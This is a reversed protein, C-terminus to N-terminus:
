KPSPFAPKIGSIENFNQPFRKTSNYGPAMLAGLTRTCRVPLPPNPPNAKGNAVKVVKAQQGDRANCLFAKILDEVKHSAHGDMM